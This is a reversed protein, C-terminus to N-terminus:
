VRLRIARVGNDNCCFNVTTTSFNHQYVGVGSSIKKSSVEDRGKRDSSNTSSEGRCRWGLSGLRETFVLRGHVDRAFGSALPIVDIVGDALEILSREWIYEFEYMTRQNLITMEESGCLIGRSGCGIYQIIKGGTVNTNRKTQQTSSLYYEQDFDHSCLITLCGIGKQKNNNNKNPNYYNTSPPHHTLLDQIKQILVHTLKSGVQTSLLSANDLIILPDIMSLETSSSQVSDNNQSQNILNIMWEKVQIYIGKIFPDHYNNIVEDNDNNADSQKTMYYESLEYNINIIDLQSDKCEQQGRGFHNNKHQLSIISPDCGSKKLATRIDNSSSSGCHIWLVKGRKSKKHITKLLTSSSFNPSAITSSSTFPSSSSSHNNNLCQTAMTHLLFRGDTEASDCILITRGGTPISDGWPLVDTLPVSSM